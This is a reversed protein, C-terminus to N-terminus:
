CLETNFFHFSEPLLDIVPEGNLDVTYRYICGNNCLVFIKHIHQNFCCIPNTGEADRPIKLTSTSPINNTVFSKLYYGWTAPRTELCFLHITESNSSVCMWRSHIDFTISAILAQDLGRRFVYVPTVDKQTLDFVRILTGKDSSTALYKGVGDLGICNIPGNHAQIDKSRIQSDLTHVQVSGDTRGLTVLM